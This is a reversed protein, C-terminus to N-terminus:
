SKEKLQSEGFVFAEISAFIFVALIQAAIYGAISHPAIGAFTNTFSRAITVAPNAFSTSSTFWYAGTIYSAVGLATKSPNFKVFGVITFLLGITAIFESAMQPLGNRAHTSLQFIPVEFIFHVIIIGLLSGIVQAAIYSIWLPTKLDGRIKFYTSVAPNFHAGSIPGFISILIFLGAGTAIANALLAIAANGAALKEGMIGSGVVIIILFMTGIFESIVRRKEM